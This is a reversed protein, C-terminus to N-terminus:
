YCFFQSRKLPTVDQKYLSISLSSTVSFRAALKAHISSCVLVWSRGSYQGPFAPVPLKLADLRKPGPHGSKPCEGFFGEIICGGLTSVLCGGIKFDSPKLTSTLFGRRIVTFTSTQSFFNDFSFKLAKSEPTM